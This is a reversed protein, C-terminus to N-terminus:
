LRANSLNCQALGALEYAADLLANLYGRWLRQLERTGKLWSLSVVLGM